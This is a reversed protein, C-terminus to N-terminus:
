QASRQLRTSARPIKIGLLTRLLSLCTQKTKLASDQGAFGFAAAVKTDSMTHAALNRAKNLRRVDRFWIQDLRDLLSRGAGSLNKPKREKPLFPSSQLVEPAKEQYYQRLFSDFRESFDQDKSILVLFETPIAIARDLPDMDRPLDKQSICFAELCRLLDEFSRPLLDFKPDFEPAEFKSMGLLIVLNRRVVFDTLCWTDIVLHRINKERGIARVMPLIQAVTAEFDESNSFLPSMKTGRAYFPISELRANRM